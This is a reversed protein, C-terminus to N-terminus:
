IDELTENFKSDGVYLNTPPDSGAVKFWVEEFILAGVDMVNVTGTPHEDSLGILPIFNGGVVVGVMCSVNLTLPTVVGIGAALAYRNADAPLCKISAAPAAATFYGGPAAARAIRIDEKCM